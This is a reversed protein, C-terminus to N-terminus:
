FHFYYTQVFDKETKTPVYNYILKADEEESDSFKHTSQRSEKVFFNATYQAIKVANESHNIAEYPYGDVQSWRYCLLLLTFISM